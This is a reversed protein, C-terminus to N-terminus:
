HGFSSASEQEVHTYGQWQNEIGYTGITSNGYPNTLTTEAIGSVSSSTTLSPVYSDLCGTMSAYSIGQTILPTHYNSPFSDQARLSPDELNDFSMPWHPINMVESHSLETSPTLPWNDM